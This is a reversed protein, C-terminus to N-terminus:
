GPFAYPLPLAHHFYHRTFSCVDSATHHFESRAPIDGHSPFHCTTQPATLSGHLTAPCGGPFASRPHPRPAMGPVWKQWGATSPPAAPERQPKWDWPHKRELHLYLHSRLALLTSRESAARPPSIPAHSPFSGTGLAAAAAGPWRNCGAGAFVGHGRSAASGVDEERSAQGESGQKPELEKGSAQSSDHKQRSALSPPSSLEQCPLRPATHTATGRHKGKLSNAHKWATFSGGPGAATTYGLMPLAGPHM